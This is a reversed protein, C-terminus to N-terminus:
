EYMIRYSSGVPQLIAGEAEFAGWVLRYPRPRPAGFFLGRSRLDLKSASFSPHQRVSKVPGNFVLLTFSRETPQADDVVVAAFDPHGDGNFDGTAVYPQYDPVPKWQGGYGRRMQQIDDPCACDSYTASRFGQHEALWARLVGSQEASLRHGAWSSVAALFLCCFTFATIRPM